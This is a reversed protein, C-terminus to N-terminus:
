NSKRPKNKRYIITLGKILLNKDLIIDRRCLPVVLESLGGTAVVTCKEGLEEEIREIIGDLACANSYMMGSKMCDVTNTGIVKAPAEFNIRPLQATRSTLANTATCMGAIILGGLYNKNGDVVSVTTATGMDIIIQPVSYHNISAVADVVQDSGLQAPNDILINLGTKVGPGVTMVDIGFLKKIADTVTGTVSPVVSSMISDKVDSLNFGNMELINKILIAYETATAQHNTSIREFLVVENEDNVCGFVINTNGIDIALLM